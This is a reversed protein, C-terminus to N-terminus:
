VRLVDCRRANRLKRLAKRGVPQWQAGRERERTRSEEREGASVSARTQPRTEDFETERFIKARRSAVHRPARFTPARFSGRPSAVDDCCVKGRTSSLNGVTIKSRSYIGPQGVKRTGRNVDLEATTNEPIVRPM